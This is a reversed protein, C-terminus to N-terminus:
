VSKYPGTKHRGVVIICGIKNIILLIHGHKHAPVLDAGVPKCLGPQSKAILTTPPLTHM